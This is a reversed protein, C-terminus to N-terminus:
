GGPTWDSEIRHRVLVPRSRGETMAEWLKEPTTAIYTVYVPDRTKSTTEM